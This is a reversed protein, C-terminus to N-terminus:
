VTVVVDDDETSIPYFHLKSPKPWYLEYGTVLDFEFGHWPCALIEGERGYQLEGPKSPLWTGGFTGRCIPAGKHPCINAVARFEGSRLRVVGIKRGNVECLKLSGKAFADVKGVCTRVKERRQEM